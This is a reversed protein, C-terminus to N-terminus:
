ALLATPLAPMLSVRQARHGFRVLYFTMLDGTALMTLGGQCRPHRSPHFFPLHEIHRLRPQLHGLMLGLDVGAGTAAAHRLRRERRLHARRHLVPGADPRRRDIQVRLLQNGFITDAVHHPIQKAGPAQTRGADDCPALLFGFLQRRDRRMDRVPHGLRRHPMQVFGPEADTAFGLPQMRGRCGRQRMVPYRFLAARKPLRQLAADDHMIVELRIEGQLIDRVRQAVCVMQTLQFRQGLDLFFGPRRLHRPQQHGGGTDDPAGHLLPLAGHGFADRPADHGDVVRDDQTPKREVFLLGCQPPAGPRRGLAPQQEHFALGRLVIADYVAVIRRSIREAVASQGQEVTRRVVGAATVLLRSMKTAWPEKEIEALAKLERLHHANCLAHAVDKLTFYPKFHDHVIVGGQLTKWLAGRKESVRYHTLAATSATHLWQTKGGIRFGTEDLHRVPAKAVRNAIHAAVPALQEAKKESWAVISAPCLRGAGFLDRMMDSVRDEPVLQQANLYVAAARIRSGYQVPASVEPPFAAKTVGRCSACTYIQAQHETVELRPQPMDFVQRKEVWTTMGATLAAQCHECSTVEHREIKDPEAVPRLTDGQHGRQGGSQKGSVGRLSGAIRPKKGLGDSSPPKSSNSSNKGLQRRLDAAEQKLAANEQKLEALERRLGEILAWLDPSLDM